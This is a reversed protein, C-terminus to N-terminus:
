APTAWAQKRGAMQPSPSDRVKTRFQANTATGLNSRVFGIKGKLDSLQCYVQAQIRDIARIAFL